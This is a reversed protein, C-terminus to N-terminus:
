LMEESCPMGARYAVIKDRGSNKASHLAINANRMLDEPQCNEQPAYAIGFSAALQIEHSEVQM